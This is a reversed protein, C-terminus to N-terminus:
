VQRPNRTKLLKEIIKLPIELLTSIIGLSSLMTRLTNIDSQKIAGVLPASILYVTLFLISGAVLLVWYPATFFILFLYVTVTALASALLIKASAGFDAKAGFHKWTLYLGIFSTPLASVQLGIIVGIMGLSPVMLFAVPISIILSLLSLKMLLKTEGMASLLSGMSRSGILALLYFVASLVLFTPAYSWKNGYLTGVLPKALVVIAMVAPVLLLVTYKVSSTFVIKLLNNEKRPDLKSFAPFLVTSIPLTIFSLLVIFNSAIKYNGILVTSVYSAM